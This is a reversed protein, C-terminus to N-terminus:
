ICMEKTYKVGNIVSTDMGNKQIVVNVYFHLSAVYNCSLSHFPVCSNRIKQIKHKAFWLSYMDCQKYYYLSLATNEVKLSNM